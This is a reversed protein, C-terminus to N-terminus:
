DGFRFVQEFTDASKTTADLEGTAGKYEGTGGMIVWFNRKSATDFVGGTFIQGDKLKFTETCHAKITELTKGSYVTCDGAGIGIKTGGPNRVVSRIAVHDGFGLGEKGVDLIEFGTLTELVRLDSEATSASSSGGLGLAVAPVAVLAALAATVTRNM